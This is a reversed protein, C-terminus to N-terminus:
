PIYDVSLWLHGVRLQYVKIPIDADHDRYFRVRGDTMDFTTNYVIGLYVRGISLQRRWFKPM